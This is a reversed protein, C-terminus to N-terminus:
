KSVRRVIANSGELHFTVKDKEKIKLAQLVELPLHVNLNVGKGSVKATTVLREKAM